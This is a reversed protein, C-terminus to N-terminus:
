LGKFLIDLYVSLQKLYEEKLRGASLRKGSRDKLFSENFGTLVWKLVECVEKEGHHLGKLSAGRMLQLYANDSSQGYRKIIKEYIDSDREAAMSIMFKGKLPNSIYWSIEAVSYETIRKKLDKSLGAIAPALDRAMESVVEDILYFYLDEKNEFYKFLSGKSIGCEKVINNTSSNTYGYEAFEAMAAEKIREKKEEDLELFVKETM